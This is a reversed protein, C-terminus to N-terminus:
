VKTFFHTKGVHYSLNPSLLFDSERQGPRIQQGERGRPGGGIELLNEGLLLKFVVGVAWVSGAM